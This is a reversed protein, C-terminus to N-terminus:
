EWTEPELLGTSFQYYANEFIRFNLHQREIFVLHESPTLESGAILKAKAELLTFPDLVTSIFEFNTEAISQRTAAKSAETNARIQQGVYVFSIVVAIASVIQSLNSLSSLTVKKIPEEYNLM